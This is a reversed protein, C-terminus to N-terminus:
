REARLRARWYDLLEDVMAPVDIAPEWGTAARLKSNDGVLVPEDSPRLRAPDVRVEVPVRGRQ